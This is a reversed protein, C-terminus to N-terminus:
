DGPRPRSVETVLGVVPKEIPGTLRLDALRDDSESELWRRTMRTLDAGLILNITGDFAYSGRVSVAAGDFSLKLPSLTVHRDHVEFSLTASRISAERHFAQLTGWGTVRAISDLPDYDGLTVNKLEVNADGTLNLRLEEHTSGSTEFHGSGNWLGRIKHLAAPLRSAVAQLSGKALSFDASLRPPGNRIDVKLRGQGHSGATEFRAESVRIVRDAVEVSARFNSLTVSRYTVSPAAFVGQAHLAGFLRSAEERDGALSRLGPLRALFSFPSRSGLDAFWSAGEQLSLKSAVLNFKWPEARSGQHELSGTFVSPGISAVLPSVAVQDGSLHVDARSIDLPKNFGPVLLRAERIELSGELAPPQLPWASGSLRLAASAAGQADVGQAARAGLDRALALLSKIPAARATIQLEYRPGAVSMGAAAQLARSAQRPRDARSPRLAALHDRPGVKNPKPAGVGRELTGEVVAELRPALTLKVPALRAGTNDIQVSLLPAIFNGASGTLRADRATLFGDYHLEGWPGQITLLGDARGAARFGGFSYGWLRRSLDELDGLRSKELAAVLDLEPSGANWDGSGLVHLHSGAFALELTELTIRASNRDVEGRFHLTVPLSDSPPPLEWRHLQSVQADAEVKVMRLSGTLRIDADIVGYIEPNRGCLLPTWDYLLSRRARLTASLPGALGKAPTWEGELELPGPTPLSLDTRVPSGTLHYRVLHQAADFRLQARLDTIAFPKKNEGVKFNIRAGTADVDLDSAEVSALHPLAATSAIGSQVLFTELNWQGRANRVANLTPHDLHLASCQFGSHWLSRWRIDCAMREIRAFPESGFAPDEGLMVNEISFGPHPLFRFSLASFQAPRHLTQQLGAELQRRYREASFFSPVWWAAVLLLAVVLIAKRVYGRRPSVM